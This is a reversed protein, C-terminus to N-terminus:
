SISVGLLEARVKIDALTKVADRYKFKTQNFRVRRRKAYFEGLKAELEDVRDSWFRINARIADEVSEPMMKMENM